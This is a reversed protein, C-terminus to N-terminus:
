LRNSQMFWRAALEAQRFVPCVWLDLCEFLMSLVESM